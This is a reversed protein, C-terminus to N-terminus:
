PAHYFWPESGDGSEQLGPMFTKGKLDIVTGNPHKAGKRESIVERITGDSIVTIADEAPQSGNGDILFANKLIIRGTM